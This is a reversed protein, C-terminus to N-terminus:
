KENRSNEGYALMIDILNFLSSINDKTVSLIDKKHNKTMVENDNLIINVGSQIKNLTPWIQKIFITLDESEEDIKNIIDKSRDDLQLNLETFDSYIKKELNNYLAYLLGILGGLFMFYFAMTLHSIAFSIKLIEIFDFSGRNTLNVIIYSAPHLFLYGLFIGSLIHVSTRISTKKM